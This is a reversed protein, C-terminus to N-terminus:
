EHPQEKKIVYKEPSCTLWIEIIWDHGKLQQMMDSYRNCYVIGDWLKHVRRTKWDGFGTNIKVWDWGFLAHTVKVWFSM